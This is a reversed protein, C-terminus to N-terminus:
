ALQAEAHDSLDFINQTIDELSELFPTLLNDLESVLGSLFGEDEATLRLSAQHEESPVKMHPERQMEEPTEDVMVYPKKETRYKPSAMMAKLTRLVREAGEQGEEVEETLRKELSKLIAAAKVSHKAEVLLLSWKEGAKELLARKGGLQRLWEVLIPEEQSAQEQMEPIQLSKEIEATLEELKNLAKKLNIRHESMEQGTPLPAQPSLPDPKGLDPEDGPEAARAKFGSIKREIEERFM